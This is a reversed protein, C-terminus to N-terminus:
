VGFEDSQSGDDPRKYGGANAGRAPGAPIRDARDRPPAGRAPQRSREAPHAEALTLAEAVAEALDPLERLRVAIGRKPDPWWGGQQDRIWLRISLFPKSEFTSWLIRLEEDPGRQICALRQGNEAPPAGQRRDPLRGRLSAARQRLDTTM